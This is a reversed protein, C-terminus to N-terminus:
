KLLEELMKVKHYEIKCAKSCFYKRWEEDIDIIAPITYLRGCLKCCVAKDIEEEVDDLIIVDAIIRDINNYM